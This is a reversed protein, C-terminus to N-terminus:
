EEKILLMRAMKGAKLLKVADEEYVVVHAWYENGMEGGDDLSSTVLCPYKKPDEFHEIEKFMGPAASRYHLSLWIKYREWEEINPILNFEQRSYNNGYEELLKDKVASFEKLLTAWAEHRTSEYWAKHDYHKMRAETEVEWAKEFAKFADLREEKTQAAAFSTQLKDTLRKFTQIYDESLM